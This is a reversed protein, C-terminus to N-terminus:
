FEGVGQESFCSELSLPHPTRDQSASSLSQKSTARSHKLGALPQHMYGHPAITLSFRNCTLPLVQDRAKTWRQALM